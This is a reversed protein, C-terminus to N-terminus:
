ADLLFKDRLKDNIKTVWNLPLLLKGNDRGYIFSTNGVLFDRLDELAGTFTPAALKSNPNFVGEMLQFRGRGGASTKFTMVGQSWPEDASPNSGEISTFTGANRFVPASECDAQTYAEWGAFSDAENFLPQLLTVLDTMAEAQSETTDDYLILDFDAGTGDNKVPLTMVHEHGNSTYYVKLYAPALCNIAM